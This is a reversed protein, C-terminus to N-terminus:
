SKELAELATCLYFHVEHGKLKIYDSKFYEDSAEVKHDLFGRKIFDEEIKRIFSVSEPGIDSLYKVFAIIPRLDTYNNSDKIRCGYLYEFEEQTM